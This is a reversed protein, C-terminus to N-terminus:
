KKDIRKRWELLIENLYEHLEQNLIKNNNCSKCNTEHTKECLYILYSLEVPSFPIHIIDEKAMNNEQLVMEINNPNIKM